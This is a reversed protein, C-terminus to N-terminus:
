LCDPKAEKTWQSGKLIYYLAPFVILTLLSSMGLGLIITYALGAWVPDSVITMSGLMTTVSTLMIPRFRTMCAEVLAEKLPKGDAQLKRLYELLIISNNVAIGALAIMGIMSTATFYEGAFAYLLAFGPFVGLASLPITAMVILPDSFSGFQAVLVFYILFIAILMALGLDRFVELTLEWEGGISIKISQGQNNQYDAGFLSFSTRNSSGDSLTYNFLLKLLDIAAYTISRDAMDGYIYVTNRRNERLLAKTSDVESIEVLQSLPVANNITNHLFVKDLVSVDERYDRSLRVRIYEQEINEDDHYIGVIKGAFLTQLTHVIQNPKIRSLSARQHKISVKVTKTDEPTSIDTDVVEDIKRVWPLLHQAEKRLLETDWGQIRVLLTSQVPPGPPDEVLKLKVPLEPSIRIAAAQLQPRMKLVIEESKLSRETDDILGVRLTAQHFGRRSSVGRFLGNFDLIPPHGIYSQLMTVHEHKAIEKEFQRTITHTKEIPTGEPMDLYVFFQEVDAKPLMRFKVLYSVPLLASLGIAIAIIVLTTNRVKRSDLVLQIFGRYLHLGNQLYSKIAQLWAHKNKTLSSEKQSLLVSAM